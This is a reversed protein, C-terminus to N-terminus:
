AGPRSAEGPVPAKFANVAAFRALVDSANQIDVNMGLWDREVEGGARKIGWWLANLFLDWDRETWATPDKQMTELAPWIKAAPTAKIPLRVGDIEIIEPATQNQDGDAM